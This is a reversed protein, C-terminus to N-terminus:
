LKQKTNKRAYYLKMIIAATEEISKNSVDIVDWNNKVCLERVARCEEQVIKIDTYNSKENVQLLNMRSERIEVLRYPNIMLGFIVSNQINCIFDPFDINHVYPINATKFGNYALYVSTPTKSTRSPGVLVIDAQNIEDILQGDDHKLTYKIAEVKDFYSEDFKNILRSDNNKADIKIYNSIADIVDSVVSICPLKKEKCFIKLKSRLKKNAITYLVIGPKKELKLFCEDLMEENKIMPWHYKTVDLNNFQFLATQSAFKVTQGSSESVLHLILKKM